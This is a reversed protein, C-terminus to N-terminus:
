IMTTAIVAASDNDDMSKCIVYLIVQKAFYAIKRNDVYSDIVIAAAIMNRVKQGVGWDGMGRVQSLRQSVENMENLVATPQEGFVSAMLAIIELGESTFHFSRRKLEDHLNKVALAKAAVDDDFLSMAAAAYMAASRNSYYKALEMYCAEYDSSIQETDKDSAALLACNAVDKSWAVYQHKSKVTNYIDTTRAIFGDYDYNESNMYIMISAIVWQYSDFIGKKFGNEISAIDTIAQEQDESVAVTATVINRAYGSRLSSFIDQNKKIVAQANKVSDVDLLVDNGILVAAMTAASSDGSWRDCKQATMFNKIYNETNIQAQTNM